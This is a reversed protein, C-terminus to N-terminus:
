RTRVARSGAQGRRRVMVTAPASLRCHVEVSAHLAECLNENHDAVLLRLPAAHDSTTSVYRALGAALAVATQRDLGSTLEDAVIWAGHKEHQKRHDRRARSHRRAARALLMALKARHLQGQSLEDVRRAFLGAQALGAHALIALWRRTSLGAGLEILPRAGIRVRLRDANGRLQFVTGGLSKIRQVLRRLHTSKGAGSPGLIFYAGGAPVRELARIAASRVKVCTQHERGDASRTLPLGLVRQARALAGARRPSSASSSKATRTACRARQHKERKM